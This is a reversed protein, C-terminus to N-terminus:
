PNISCAEDSGLKIRPIANPRRLLAPRAGVGEEMEGWEGFIILVAVFLEVM